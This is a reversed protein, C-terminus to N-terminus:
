ERRCILKYPCIKCRDFIETQRFVTEPSYIETLIKELHTQFEAEVQSIEMKKGGIKISMDFNEDALKLIAYIVAHVSKEPYNERRLIFSYILAQIIEKKIKKVAPNFLEDLSPVSLDKPDINGTKYDIVRLYGDTEDIRDIKGGVKVPHKKGNIDIDISTECGQELAHIILSNNAIDISILNLLYTKIARFILLAKGETRIERYQEEPKRFFETAFAKLIVEDIKKADKRLKELENKDIEKGVFPLYLNEIAKHFINGFHRRDIEESVEQEEDIGLVYRFYFRLSCNMWMNIASPSLPKGSANVALLKHLSEETQAIAIPQPANGSFRYDINETEVRHPAHLMLQFGYRSLEGGSVGERITNWTATIKQARQTLRYFYYSYMAEQDDIGPLGFARRLGFPILSPAISTRPWADENLGIIIINDFDLCRTELIGMVQLGSLPEGEFPVTLQNIYQNMLRFFIAPTIEKASDANDRSLVIKLKEIATYVNYILEKIIINEDGAAFLLYLQELVKLFYAPYEKVTEPLTFIQQHLPSIHLMEAEIYIRNGSKIESIIAGTKEPELNVLLQHTLVDLAMRFYVIQVGNENKRINRLILSLVSLLSVVPSNKVPYGMTINVEGINDPIAGLVPFLLSEDALVIATNDFAIKKDDALENLFRPIIQSQGYSSAVSVIKINKPKAFNDVPLVFNEPPPFLRINERLFRGAGMVANDIYYNDYDWLFDAKQEKKLHNMLEKECRSLVNMGAFIYKDFPAPSSGAALREAGDRIVMGPYGIGLRRLKKKFNDYVPFLKDWYTLFDREQHHNEWNKLSGWFQELITKQEPTLYDFHNEIAKVNALNSFVDRADAMYNDLDNFDNLLVEGWFYFEDFTEHTGTVSKYVDYLHTILLLNDAVQLESFSQPLEQITTIAPGFLPREILKQLYAKFFAGARRNPFVMCIGSLAPYVDYVYSACTQLFRQM